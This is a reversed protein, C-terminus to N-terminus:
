FTYGYGITLYNDKGLRMYGVRSLHHEKLLAGVELSAGAKAGLAVGGGIYPRFARVERITTLVERQLPAITASASALRNHSVVARVKFTGTTDTSFDLDYDRQQIYDAIISATDAQIRVEQRITDTYQIRPLDIRQVKIPAPMNYKITTTPREAYRVEQRVVEVNREDRPGLWWGLCFGLLLTVASAIYPLINRKAMNFFISHRGSCHLFFREFFRGALM